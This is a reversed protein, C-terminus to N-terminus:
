KRRLPLFVPLYVFFAIMSFVMGGMTGVAFSFWFGSDQAHVLFPILGLVTSLVTLLIPVIKRNYAKLYLTLGESRRSRAIINYENIVYIGANVVLGSLLVFAAFGGDNFKFGFLGFTLFVGIFSIPILLIIVLPKRWSEFLVTCIAYILVVVLVILLFARKAEETSWGGRNTIEARYGIPLVEENLRQTEAELFRSALEYSGIFDFAVTLSYNQNVRHISRGSYKREITGIDALKVKMSDVDLPWNRVHWLDFSEKRSSSLVVPESKNGDTLISRLSQSYLLERLQDFYRGANIGTMLIRERDLDIVFEQKPLQWSEEDFIEPNSVRRNEKVRALLDDAYQFLFDYNYGTLTIRHPLYGLGASSVNNNFSQDGIGWVRFTAGGNRHVERKVNEFLFYPFSGNEYEPKFLVDIQANNYNSIRSRFIEIEDFQSLYNEVNRMIRNLQHVTNGEIMAGRIHLEPRPIEEDEPPRYTTLPKQFLRFSGGLSKEFIDKHEQYFSSGITGNYLKMWRTPEKSQSQYSRYDHTLRSPLMQVPLGFGLIFLLLFLWRHRRGWGIFRRYVRNVRSIRRKTRRGSVTMSRKLKLRDVLSPIFLFSIILSVSLNIIIVLAFDSFTIRQKEPLLLVVSLAAITTFVAGFLATFARRDNYFSYHDTMIISTDIIIGLSVTIGALSYIHIELHLLCYFVIAILINAMLTLFIILLYRFNRSALLVFLLLIILTAFTRLFITHLETEIHEAADFTLEATLNKPFSQELISMQKQVEASVLTLNSNRGASVSLNITNLGNVRSYSSPESERYRVTVLDRLTFIRGEANKVTAALFDDSGSIRVKLLIVNENNEGYRVNGVISEGRYSNFASAIESMRIGALSAKDADVTLEYEWPTIGGYTVGDVGPIKALAPLIEGDFYEAVRNGPLNTNFTYTVATTSSSRNGTTALSLSPYSVGEPLTPYIYRIQSAVEFRAVQMKTGKEFTLNVSGSGPNSVSSIETVGEIRALAGEMKSIVEKEILSASAGGWGCSVSLTLRTSTPNLKVTLLPIMAAGVIMLAAMILIVSFSSLQRLPNKM